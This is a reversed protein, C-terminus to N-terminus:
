SGHAAGVYGVATQRGLRRGHTVRPACNEFVPPFTRGLREGTPSIRDHPPSSGGVWGRNCGMDGFHIATRPGRDWTGFRSAWSSVFACAVDVTTTARLPIAEPWRTTRDVVTLLHTYGQSYPLPGVLDVNVHEFRREPVRFEGLPARTHRHVKARQCDVCTRAWDRVDKKLGRWVFKGAVLRVSAKAGPHSLSHATQFVRHRWAAPVVPRPSALSVDCLLKVRRDGVAGEALTLGSPSARLQQVTPDSAQDRAMAAYDLDLSVASAAVRSLCDAACNDKGSVHQLDTTFESIYALHRQQRATWPDAHKKMAGTLPKHDVFATFPRGELMNRFHRVALYLALLERDFTSYKREPPRLQRSFFALPQWVGGVLQEYVAGVASDSADSTVAIPASPVPHALMAANALAAKVADFARVREPTWEVLAAVPGKLSQHLPLMLQAAGPIFRHYFNVMGLFERLAKVSVPRPFRAIAEVKEPLPVAGAASIRHGLFDIVSRGFQCKGPHIALGHQQLREFLTELHQVHQERSGSAVLIDDLYVFLFPLDRVVADMLRQFTQAANKLGFPMRLFEFLGFPTTVATKPVDAPHVPIQHYGRVLDIKSFVTMGALHASFDQIHPVPYRDAQTSDNLRRYDGCPRWGGDAKPVIHLPSSWPSDSRRVIGMREMESFEAKAVALKAPDLRRARAFVPPGTTPLHHKVGHRVTATSFDPSLLAPFRALLQRFLEDEAPAVPQQACADQVSACVNEDPQEADMVRRNRLDVVLGHARLFDAGVINFDADATVFDWSYQRGNFCLDLRRRGFVRVAEGNVNVMRPLGGCMAATPARARESPLAPVMSAHAGTDCLFDCGSVTDRLYLLTNDLTDGTGTNLASCRGPRKGARHVFVAACM